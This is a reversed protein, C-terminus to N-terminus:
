DILGTPTGYIFTLLIIFYLIKMNTAKTRINALPYMSDNGNSDLKYDVQVKTCDSLAKNIEQYFISYAVHVILYLFCVFHRLNTYSCCMTSTETLSTLDPLPLVAVPAQTTCALPSSGMAPSSCHKCILSVTLQQSLGFCCM